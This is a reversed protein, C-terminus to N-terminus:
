NPSTIFLAAIFVTRYSKIDVDAKMKKPYIGIPSIVM